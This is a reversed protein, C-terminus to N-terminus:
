KKQEQKHNNKAEQETLWLAVAESYSINRKFEREKKERFQFVKKLQENSRVM